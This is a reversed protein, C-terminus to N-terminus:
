CLVYQCVLLHTSIDMVYNKHAYNITLPCPIKRTKRKAPNNYAIKKNNRTKQKTKKNEKNKTKTQKYKNNKDNQTKTKITNSGGQM